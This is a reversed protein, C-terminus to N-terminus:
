WPSRDGGVARSLEEKSALGLELMRIMDLRHATEDENKHVGVPVGNAYYATRTEDRVITLNENVEQGEAPSLGLRFQTAM